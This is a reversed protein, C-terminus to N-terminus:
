HNNVLDCVDKLTLLQNKALLVLKVNLNDQKIKTSDPLVPNVPNPKKPLINMLVRKVILQLLVRVVLHMVFFNQKVNEHVVNAAQETPQLVARKVAHQYMVVFVWIGNITSIM